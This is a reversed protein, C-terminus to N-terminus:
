NPDNQIAAWVAMVLVYVLFVGLVILTYEITGQARARKILIERARIFLKTGLSKM